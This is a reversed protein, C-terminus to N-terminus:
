RLVMASDRAGNVRLINGEPTLQRPIDDFTPKSSRDSKSMTSQHAVPAAAKVAVVRKSKKSAHVSAHHRQVRMRMDAGPAGRAAPPNWIEVYKGEAHAVSAVLLAAIGSAISKM